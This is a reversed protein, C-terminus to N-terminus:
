ESSITSAALDDPDPPPPFWNGKLFREVIFLVTILGVIPV